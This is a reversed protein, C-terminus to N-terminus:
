KLRSRTTLDRMFKVEWYRRAMSVWELCWSKWKEVILAGTILMVSDNDRGELESWDEEDRGCVTSERNEEGRARDVPQPRRTRLLPESPTARISDPHSPFGIIM